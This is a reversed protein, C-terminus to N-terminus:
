FAYGIRLRLAYIFSIGSWSRYEYGTKTGQFGLGAAGSGGLSLGFPFLYDWGSECAVGVGTSVVRGDISTMSLGLTPGVFFQSFAKDRVWWFYRGEVQMWSGSGWNTFRTGIGASENSATRGDYFIGLNGGPSFSGTGSVVGGGETLPLELQIRGDAALHSPAGPAQPKVMSSGGGSGKENAWAGQFCVFFATSLVVLKSIFTLM